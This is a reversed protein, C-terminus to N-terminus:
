YKANTAWVEDLSDRFLQNLKETQGRTKKVDFTGSELRKIEKEIFQSIIPIRPGRGLEEGQKKKVVLADIAKRLDKEDIIKTVMEDFEMPVPGLDREIWMCALIPRLLYFYKKIWVTDGKLYERYNGQAMHMYHYLCAIPSYFEDTLDRMKQAISYQEIYVIPSRLWEFLPPNSKRFLVLGKKIDWGSVDLQDNIPREIVDRGEDITLYWDRPHIYLFRVDYDSDTSEFGWARSGSECAYFIKVNEQAEVENLTKIIEDKM